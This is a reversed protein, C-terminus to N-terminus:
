NWGLGFDSANLLRNNSAGQEAEPFENPRLSHLVRATVACNTGVLSDGPGAAKFLDALHRVLQAKVVHDRTRLSELLFAASCYLDGAATISSGTSTIELFGAARAM